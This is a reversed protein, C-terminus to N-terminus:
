RQFAPSPFISGGGNGSVEVRAVCGGPTAAAAALCEARLTAALEADTTALADLVARFISVYKRTCIACYSKLLQKM